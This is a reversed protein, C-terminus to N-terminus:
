PTVNLGAEAALAPALETLQEPTITVGRLSTLPGVVSLACTRLDLDKIRAGALSLRGVRADRLALRTVRAGDLDLDEIVVDELLVDTVTARSLDLRGIKAGRLVVGSLKADVLEAVGVRVRSAAVHRVGTRAARAHVATLDRVTCNEWRTGTLDAEGLDAGAVLCDRFTVDTLDTLSPVGGLRVADHVGFAGFDEWAAERVADGEVPDGLPVRPQAPTM